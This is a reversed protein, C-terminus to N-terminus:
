KLQYLVTNSIRSDPNTHLRARVIKRVSVLSRALLAAEASSPTMYLPILTAHCFM